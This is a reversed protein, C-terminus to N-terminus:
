AVPVEVLLRPRFDEQEGKRAYGVPNAVVRCGDKRYDSLAHLHGHLWLQARPLLDDLANCFGATGPILGYRPDASALSPAFHTVVVTPGACPAALVTRLWQQCVLAQERMHEALWPDGARTTAAKKLYFNAARFAKARVALALAPTADAPVLADFDSWLTTGAFRVGDVVLTERELWAIGLRDCLRRLRDHAADFDQADYEHNGPVYLVPQPWGGYQPLPSFRELGFDDGALRSGAQYSGVDGALVLLDAGSVPQVTFDPQAELHVDSLLQLKM